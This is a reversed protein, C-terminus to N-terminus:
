VVTQMLLCFFFFSRTVCLDIPGLKLLSTLQTQDLSTRLVGGYEYYSDVDPLSARKVRFLCLEFWNSACGLRPQTPHGTPSLRYQWESERKTCLRGWVPCTSWCRRGCNNKKGEKTSEKRKCIKSVQKCEDFRLDIYSRANCSCVHIGDKGPCGHMTRVNVVFTCSLNGRKGADSRTQYFDTKWM